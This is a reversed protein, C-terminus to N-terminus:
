SSLANTFPDKGKIWNGGSKSGIGHLGSNKSKANFWISKGESSASTALVLPLPKVPNTLPHSPPHLFYHLFNIKKNFNKRYFALLFINVNKYESNIDDSSFSFMPYQNLKKIFNLIQLWNTFLRILSYIFNCSFYFIYILYM